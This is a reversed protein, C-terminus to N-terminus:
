PYINEKEHVIVLVTKTLHLSNKSGKVEDDSGAYNLSYLYNFAM